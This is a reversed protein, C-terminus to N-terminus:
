DPVRNALNELLAIALHVDSSILSRFAARDIALCEVHTIAQVRAIRKSDSRLLALEGVVEGPGLETDVGRAHVAVRGELIVFAGSGPYGAEILLNGPEFSVKSCMAAIRELEEDPLGRFIGVSRLAEIQTSV